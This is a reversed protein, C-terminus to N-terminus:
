FFANLNSDHLKPRVFVEVQSYAFNAEPSNRGRPPSVEGHAFRNRKYVLREIEADRLEVNISISGLSPSIALAKKRFVFRTQESGCCLLRETCRVLSIKEIIPNVRLLKIKAGTPTEPFPVQLEAASIV